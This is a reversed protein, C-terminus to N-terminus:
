AWRDLADVLGRWAAALAPGRSTIIPADRLERVHAARPLGDRSGNREADTEVVLDTLETALFRELAADRAPTGGHFYAGTVLPPVPPPPRKPPRITIALWVVALVVLAIASGAVIAMVPARAPRPPSLVAYADAVDDSAAADHFASQIDRADARRSSDR